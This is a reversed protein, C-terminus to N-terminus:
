RLLNCRGFQLTHLEPCGHLLKEVAGDSITYQDAFCLIELQVCHEACALLVADRVCFCTDFYLFEILKSCGRAVSVLAGEIRSSDRVEGLSGVVMTLRTLNHCRLGITDLQAVAFPACSLRLKTLSCAHVYLARTTNMTEWGPWMIRVKELRVCASLVDCLCKDPMTMSWLELERLNSMDRCVSAMSTDSTKGHLYLGRIKVLHGGHQMISYTEDTSLNDAACDWWLSGRDPLERLLDPFLKAEEQFVRSVRLAVITVRRHLCWQWSDTLCTTYYDSALNVSTYYAYAKELNTRYRRELVASDIRVLAVLHLFAFVRLGLVEAPFSLCWM